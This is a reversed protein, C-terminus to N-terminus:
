SGQVETLEHVMIDFRWEERAGEVMDISHVTFNHLSKWGLHTYLPEGQETAILTATANLGEYKERGIRVGANVLAGGAGQRQYDPHTALIALHFQNERAYLSDLYTERAVRLQDNFDTLRTLNLDRDQCKALIMASLLSFALDDPGYADPLIWLATAVVTNEHPKTINPLLAVQALVYPLGLVNRIPEYLCDHHEEPYKDKFQYGYKWYPLEDFAALITNTIAEADSITANRLSLAAPLLPEQLGRVCHGSGVLLAAFTVLM